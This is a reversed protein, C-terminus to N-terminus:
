VILDHVSGIERAREETLSKRDSQEKEKLFVNIPILIFEKKQRPHYYWIAVYALANIIWFCDFPKKSAWTTQSGKYAPLDSIKHYVGKSQANQLGEVQWPKVAEFPLSGGKALKLEVVVSSEWKRQKVWKTFLSQFNRERM